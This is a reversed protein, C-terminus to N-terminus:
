FRVTVTIATWLECQAGTDGASGLLSLSNLVRVSLAYAASWGRLAPTM